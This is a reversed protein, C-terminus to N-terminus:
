PAATASKDWEDRTIPQIAQLNKRALDANIRPLEKTSWADFSTVIDTLERTLADTRMQQM